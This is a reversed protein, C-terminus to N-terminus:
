WIVTLYTTLDIEQNLGKTSMDGRQAKWDSFQKMLGVEKQIIQATNVMVITQNKSLQVTVGDWPSQLYNVILQYVHVYLLYVYWM